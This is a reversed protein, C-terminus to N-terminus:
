GSLRELFRAPTLVPPDTRLHTLHADGSVLAAAEVSSALALLYEDKPDRSVAGVELPDVAVIALRALMAVYAEAQERSVYQRFKRRRLVTELEAILKPSIVLEFTGELWLMVLRAPAGRQSLLAAILVGPDLVARIM